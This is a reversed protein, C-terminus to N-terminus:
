SARNADRKLEMLIEEGGKAKIEDVWAKMLEASYEQVSLHKQISVHKRGDLSLIEGEFNLQGREISALAGIPSSCGGELLRLFHREMGVTLFTDEDNFQQAYNLLDEDGSRCFSAIAGQAPAPLFDLIKINSLETDMREIAAKAMILVDYEGEYFKKLRTQINGRINQFEHHPFRHSWMAKRRISSTAILARKERLDDWSSGTKLIAVDRHDARPLVGALSLGQAIKTPVDKLSHVAFDIRKSLLATDLTRTFVGQVGMEYIPQELNIDGESKVSEIICNLGSNLLAQEVQHAQYMALESDRTGIKFMKKDGNHNEVFNQFAKIYSCAHINAVKAEKAMNKLLEDIKDSHVYSKDVPCVEADMDPYEHVAALQKKTMQIIPAYRRMADWSVFDSVSRELIEQAKPLDRRREEVTEKMVSSVEDVNLYVLNEKERVEADVDSPLTLDLISQKHHVEDFDQASLLKKGGAATCVILHSFDALRDKWENWSLSQVNELRSALRKTKETSRNTIFLKKQPLVAAFNHAVARGIQGVGILLCSRGSETDNERIWNVAAHAVSTSGNSISTNRKVLRSANLGTNIMREMFSRIKGYRKPLQVADKIQSVIEHDGIIQSDLGSAVRFFHRLAEVGQLQYTQKEIEQFDLQLYHSLHDVLEEIQPHILYYETRNCTSLIFLEEINLMETAHLIHAYHKRDVAFKERIRFDTKRYSIGLLHLQNIKSGM